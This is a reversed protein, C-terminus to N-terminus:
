IFIYFSNLVQVYFNEYEMLAHLKRGAKKKEFLKNAANKDDFKDKLSNTILKIINSSKELM